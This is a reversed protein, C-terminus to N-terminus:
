CTLLNGPEDKKDKKLALITQTSWNDKGARPFGLGAFYWSLHTGEVHIVVKEPDIDGGTHLFGNKCDIWLESYASVSLLYRFYCYKTAECGVSDSYCAFSANKKRQM